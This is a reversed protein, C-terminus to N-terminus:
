EKNERLNIEDEKEVGGFWKGFQFGFALCFWGVAVILSYFHIIYAVILNLLIIIVLIKIDASAKKNKIKEEM